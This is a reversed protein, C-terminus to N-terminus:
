EYALAIAVHYGGLVLLSSSTALHLIFWWTYLARLHARLVARHALGLAITTVFGISLLLLYGYSFRTAHLYLVVPACAGALKHWFLAGIPDYLRRRGVLMQYALFCALLVGSTVKYVQNAQLRALAPWELGLWGQAVYLVLLVAGVVLIIRDSRDSASM